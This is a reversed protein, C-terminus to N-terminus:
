FEERMTIQIMHAHNFFNKMDDTDMKIKSVMSKQCKEVMENWIVTSSGIYGHREAVKGIKTQHQPFIVDEDNKVLTVRQILVKMHIEQMM